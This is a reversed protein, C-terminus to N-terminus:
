ICPVSVGLDLITVLQRNTLELKPLICWFLSGNEQGSGLEVLQINTFELNPLIRWFTGEMKRVRYTCIITRHGITVLQLLGNTIVFQITVIQLASHWTGLAM